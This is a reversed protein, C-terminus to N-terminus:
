NTSANQSELNKKVQNDELQQQLQATKQVTKELEIFHMLLKLDRAALVADVKSSKFDIELVRSLRMLEKADYEEEDNDETNPLRIVDVSLMDAPCSQFESVRFTYHNTNWGKGIVWQKAIEIAKEENRFSFLASM